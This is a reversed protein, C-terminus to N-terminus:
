NFTFIIKDILFIEHCSAKFRPLQFLVLPNYFDKDKHTMNPSSKKFLKFSEPKKFTLGLTADGESGASKPLQILYLPVEDHM